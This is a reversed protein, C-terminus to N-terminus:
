KKTLTFTGNPQQLIIEGSEPVFRAEFGPLGKLGYLHEEIPELEYTPQGPVTLTLTNEGRIAVTITQGMLDYKGTYQEKLEDTLKVDVKRIFVIPEVSPELPVSIEEIRGQTNMRFHILFTAGLDTDKGQFVDYHYHSLGLEFSNYVAQLSDAATVTITGYGPHRYSGAYAEIALSPQTGPIRNDAETQQTSDQKLEAQEMRQLAEANWDKKELGLLHDIVTNRVLGPAPSGNMNTLIVVGVSDTPVMGVMASFGDINGGHHLMIKGRYADVFWGLAYNTLGNPQSLRGAPVTVLPRHLEKLMASSIIDRDGLKGGNLHLRVWNAMELVSANISGAPGVADINRFPLQEVEEEKKGYPLAHNDDQQMANVSFNARQMQLPTLIQEQVVAEWTKGKLQGTLYGATMFMLNQYQFVERFGASPELYALSHYLEQRSRDSGYWVLDHRPLGSRHCLLDRVTLHRTVYPDHMRFDPLYDIVPKDLELLGEDALQAVALATFAKSSSGIAFLTNENVPTKAEVNRYGYGKAYIVEDGRVVSLALGPVDWDSMIQEIETDLQELSQASLNALSVGLFLLLFLIRPM